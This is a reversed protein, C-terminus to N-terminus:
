RSASCSGTAASSTGARACSPSTARRTRRRPWRSPPGPRPRADVLRARRGVARLQVADIILANAPGVVAILVGAFAAGLMSASREVMSALGTAREMPVGAHEVLAPVMAHKASDGPGRLAGAMAVLVLFGPFSLHGAAYLLPISGIVLVSLLDCTISIRRAGLKDIIPGGLVKLLVMPLMEALAVLGTQTASGTTTLVFWPLAIMSVRTGTISLAEATLWGYLPKRSSVHPRGGTVHGPLPFATLQVVFQEASEDDEDEADGIVDALADVLAKARAPTLRVM